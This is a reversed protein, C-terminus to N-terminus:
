GGIGGGGGEEGGTTAIYLRIYEMWDLHKCFFLFVLVTVRPFLEGASVDGVSITSYNLGVARM